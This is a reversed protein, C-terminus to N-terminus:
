RYAKDCLREVVARFMSISETTVTNIKLQRWLNMLVGVARESEPPKDLLQCALGIVTVIQRQDNVDPFDVRLRILARIAETEIQKDDM